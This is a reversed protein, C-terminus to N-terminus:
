EELNKEFYNYLKIALLEDHQKNHKTLCEDVLKLIMKHKVVIDDANLIVKDLNSPSKQEKKLDEIIQEDKIRKAM